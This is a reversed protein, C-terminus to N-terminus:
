VDEGINVNSYFVLFSEKRFCGLRKVLTSCLDLRTKNVIAQELCEFLASLCPLGQICSPYPSVALYGERWKEKKAKLKSNSGVIETIAPFISHELSNFQGHM